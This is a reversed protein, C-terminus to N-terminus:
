RNPVLLRKITEVVEAHNLPKRCFGQITGAELLSNIEESLFRSSMLIIPRMDSLGRRDRALKIGANATEMGIDSIILDIHLLGALLVANADRASEAEYFEYQAVRLSFCVAQRIEWDNDVVLIRTM